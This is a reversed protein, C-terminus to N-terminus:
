VGIGVQSFTGEKGDGNRLRISSKSVSSVVTELSSTREKDEGEFFNIWDGAVRSEEICDLSTVVGRDIGGSNGVGDGYDLSWLL